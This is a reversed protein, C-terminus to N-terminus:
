VHLMWHGNKRSYCLSESVVEIERDGNSFSNVFSSILLAYLSKHTFVSRYEREHLYETIVLM